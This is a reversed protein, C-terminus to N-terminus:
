DDYWSDELDEKINKVVLKGLDAFDKGLEKATSKLAADIEEKEKKKQEIAKQKAEAKELDLEKQLMETLAPSMRSIMEKQAKHKQISRFNGIFFFVIMLVIPMGFFGKLVGMSSDTMNNSNAIYALYGIGFWIAAVVLWLIFGKSRGSQFKRYIKRSKNLEKESLEPFATSSEM